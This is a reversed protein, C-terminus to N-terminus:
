GGHMVIRSLDKLDKHLWGAWSRLLAHIFTMVELAMSLRCYLRSQLCYVCLLTETELINAINQFSNVFGVM